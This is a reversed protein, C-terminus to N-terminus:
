SEQESVRKSEADEEKAKAAEVERRTEESIILKPRGNVDEPPASTEYADKARKAEGVLGDIQQLLGQIKADLVALQFRSEGLLACANVYDQQVVEPRRPPLIPQGMKKKEQKPGEGQKKVSGDPNFEWGKTELFRRQHRNPKPDGTM